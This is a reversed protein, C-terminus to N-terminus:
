KVIVWTKIGSSDYLKAIESFRHATISKPVVFHMKRGSRFLVHVSM